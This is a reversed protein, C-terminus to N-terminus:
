TVGHSVMQSENYSYRIGYQSHSMTLWDIQYDSELKVCKQNDTAVRSVLCQLGLPAGIREWRHTAKVKTLPLFVEPVGYETGAGGDVCGDM